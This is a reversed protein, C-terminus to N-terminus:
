NFCITKLRVQKVSGGRIDVNPYLQRTNLLIQGFELMTSKKNMPNPNAYLLDVRGIAESVTKLGLKALFYRVEEAVMFMFNVVHEPKGAFKARLIPDQTAIGVPCTNLHCKRMMTCGLVILPATSMGFEDAGLLAAIIVDRGTRIQGDAQLIVRSRLNNM